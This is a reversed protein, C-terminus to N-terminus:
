ADTVGGEEAESPVTCYFVVVTTTSPSVGSLTAGVYAEFASGDKKNLTIKGVSGDDTHIHYYPRDKYARTFYFTGNGILEGFEVTYRATTERIDEVTSVLEYLTDNLTPKYAGVTLSVEKYNFPNWDLGVVRRNINLGLPKFHIALEDGLQVDKKRYLEISFSYRQETANYSYSIDKVNETKMIDVPETRGQHSRIGITYGYYEIEGRVLAILQMICARRTAGKNIRLTVEQEFDVTGTTFPTGELLVSLIEQATGTMDFAEVLYEEENLLYSIHEGRMQTYCMGGSINKRIETVSFVLGELELIDRVTVIGEMQRTLIKFDMECEGTLKQSITCANVGSYTKILQGATNDPNREYFNIVPHPPVLRYRAYVTIDATVHTFSTSWGIFIYGELKKPMPAVASDGEAVHQTSWVEVGDKDMFTVTYGVATYLPRITLDQQVNTFDTNWGIFKMGEIVEPEPAM